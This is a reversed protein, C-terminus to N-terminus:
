WGWRFIAHEIGQLIYTVLLLGLCGIFVWEVNSSLVLSQVGGSGVTQEARTPMFALAAIVRDMFKLGQQYGLNLIPLAAFIAAAAAPYALWQLIRFKYEQHEEYLPCARCPTRGQSARYRIAAVEEHAWAEVGRALAEALRLDCMCGSGRKWCSRRQQLSPCSASQARCRSLEWCQKLLSRPRASQAPSSAGRLAVRRPRHTASWFLRVAGWAAAMILIAKGAAQTGLTVLDTLENASHYQQALLTTMLAPLGLYLFGGVAASLGIAEASDHYRALAMLIAVAAAWSLIATANGVWAILAARASDSLLSKESGPPHPFATIHGSVLGYALYIFAAGAALGSVLLLKEALLSYPGIVRQPARGSKAAPRRPASSVRQAM